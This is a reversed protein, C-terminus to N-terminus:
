LLEFFSASVIATDIRTLTGGRDMVLKSTTSGMAAMNEFSRAQARWDVFNRYSVERVTQGRGASAESVAVVREPAHIPLARLLISRVASFVMVNAALAIALTAIVVGTFLPTASLRRVAFRLDPALTM